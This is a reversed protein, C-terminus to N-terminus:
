EGCLIKLTGIILQATHSLKKCDLLFEFPETKNGYINKIERQLSIQSHEDTMSSFTVTDSTALGYTLVPIKNHMFFSLAKINGSECIGIYNNDNIITKSPTLDSYLLLLTNQSKTKLKIKSVFNILYKTGSQLVSDDNIIISGQEFFFDTLEAKLKIDRGVAKIAIM